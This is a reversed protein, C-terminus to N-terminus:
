FFRVAHVQFGKLPDPDKRSLASRASLLHTQEGAWWACGGPKDMAGTAEAEASESLLATMPSTGFAEPIMGRARTAKM